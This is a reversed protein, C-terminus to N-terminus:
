TGVLKVLNICDPMSVMERRRPCRETAEVFIKFM